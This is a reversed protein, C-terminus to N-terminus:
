QTYLNSLKLGAELDGGLHVRILNGYFWLCLLKIQATCWGGWPPIQSLGDTGRSNMHPLNLPLSISFLFGGRAWLAKFSSDLWQGQGSVRYM